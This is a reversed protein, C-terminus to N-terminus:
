YMSPGVHAKIVARLRDSMSLALKELLDKEINKHWISIIKAKLEVTSAFHQSWVRKKLVSWLDEIPYLDPSQPPWDLTNWCQDNVFKTVPKSRHCPAGDDQM